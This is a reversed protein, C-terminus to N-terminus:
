GGGVKEAAKAKGKEHLCIHVIGHALGVYFRAPRDAVGSAWQDVAKACQRRTNPVDGAHCKNQHFELNGQLKKFHEL